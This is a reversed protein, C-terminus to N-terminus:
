AASHMDSAHAVDFAARVFGLERALKAWGTDDLHPRVSRLVAQFAEPPLKARLEKMLGAREVPAIAPVMWRLVTMMEAPPISALLREHLAHLEEDTYHAWLAPNHVTEEVHMHEFNEAVFLALHRYLRTALPTRAADGAARLQRMDERLCAITELHEVHEGAIRQSAGGQRAELAPHMFENEHELHSTAADLLADLKALTASTDAADHVDLRGVAALTDMMFLRMAKHIPAYLDLRQAAVAPRSALTATTMTDDKQTALHATEPAAAPAADSSLAM